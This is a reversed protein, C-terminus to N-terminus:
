TSFRARRLAVVVVAYVGIIALLLVFVEALVKLEAGPVEVLGLVSINLGLLLVLASTTVLIGGAGLWSPRYRLSLLAATALTFLGTMPLARGILQRPPENTQLLAAITTVPEFVVLSTIGLVVFMALYLFNYEYWSRLTPSPTVLAYSWALCIGCLVGALLMAPFSFWISSILIQHVVTFVLTSVAGALAGSAVFGAM